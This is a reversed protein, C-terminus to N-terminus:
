PMQYHRTAKKKRKRKKKHSIIESGGNHEAREKVGQKHLQIFFTDTQKITQHSLHPTQTIVYIGLSFQTTCLSRTYSISAPPNFVFM